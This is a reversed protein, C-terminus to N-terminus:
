DCRMGCGYHSILTGAATAFVCTLVFSISNIYSTYHYVLYMIGGVILTPISFFLLEALLEIREETKPNM